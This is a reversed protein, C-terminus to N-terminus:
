LDEESKITYSYSVSLRRVPVFNGLEVAFGFFLGPFVEQSIGTQWVPWETKRAIVEAEIKTDLLNAGTNIFFAQGEQKLVGEDSVSRHTFGANMLWRGSSVGAVGTFDISRFENVKFGVNVNWLGLENSSRFPSVSVGVSPVRLSVAGSGVVNEVPFDVHFYVGDLLSSAIANVRLTSDRMTAQTFLGRVYSANHASNLIFISQAQSSYSIGLALLFLLLQKM